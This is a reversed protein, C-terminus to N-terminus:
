YKFVKKLENNILKNVQKTMVKSPGVFQRKPMGALGRNHRRAYKIGYSGVRIANFSASRVRLSLRLAGSKVLIARGKDPHKRAKWPDLTADTFGQKRFSQQFHRKMISAIKTPLGKKATRLKKVVKEFNWRKAM